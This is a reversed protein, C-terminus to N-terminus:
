RTMRFTAWSLQEPVEDVDMDLDTSAADRWDNEVAPRDESIVLAGEMAESLREDTEVFFSDDLLQANNMDNDQERLDSWCAIYTLNSSILKGWTVAYRQSDEVRRMLVGSYLRRESYGRYIRSISTQANTRKRLRQTTIIQQYHRQVVKAILNRAQFEEIWRTTGPAKSARAVDLATRGRGDKSDLSMAKSTVLWKLLDQRDYAAALHALDMGGSDRDSILLEGNAVMDRVEVLSGGNKISDFNSWRRQQEAELKRYSIVFDEEENSFRYEALDSIDVGNMSIKKLGSPQIERPVSLVHDRGSRWLFYIM